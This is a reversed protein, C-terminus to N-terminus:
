PRESNLTRQKVWSRPFSTFLQYSSCQLEWAINYFTNASLVRPLKYLMTQSLLFLGSLAAKTQSRSFKWAWLCKDPLPGHVCLRPVPHGPPATPLIVWPSWVARVLVWLIDNGMSPHTSSVSEPKRVLVKRVTRDEHSISKAPFRTNSPLYFPWASDSWAFKKIVLVTETNLSM